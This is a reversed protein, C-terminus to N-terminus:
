TAEPGFAIPVITYNGDLDLGFLDIYARCSKESGIAIVSGTSENMVGHTVRVPKVEEPASQVIHKITYGMARMAAFAQDEPIKPHNQEPRWSDAFGWTIPRMQGNRHQCLYVTGTWTDGPMVDITKM